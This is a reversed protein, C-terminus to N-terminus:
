ISFHITDWAISKFLVKPQNVNRDPPGLYDRWGKALFSSEQLKFSSEEPTLKKIVLFFFISWSNRTLESPVKIKLLHNQPQKIDGYAVALFFSQWHLWRSQGESHRVWGSTATPRSAPRAQRRTSSGHHPDRRTTLTQYGGLRTGGKLKSFGPAKSFATQIRNQM